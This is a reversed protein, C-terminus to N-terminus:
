EEKWNIIYAPLTSTPLHTFADNIADSDYNVTPNGTLTTDFQAGSEVFIAGNIIPNGSVWLTGIVWIIGDFTGGTVRLDGNVILIGSGQWNSDSVIMEEEFVMDVWTSSDVPTVNNEPDTYIHVVCERMTEKSIGFIEEFDFDANDNVDGNVEVSGKIVVEGSATIAATIEGPEPEVLPQEVLAKIIRVLNAPDTEDTDPIGGKSTILYRVPSVSLSETYYHGNGLTGALPSDPLNSIANDLGAEALWFVQLSDREKQVVKQEGMSRAIFSASLIVLLTVVM